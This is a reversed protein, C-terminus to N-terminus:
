GPAVEARPLLRLLLVAQGTALAALGRIGDLGALRQNRM